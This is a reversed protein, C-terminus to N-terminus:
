LTNSADARRSYVNGNLKSIPRHHASVQLSSTGLSPFPITRMKPIDQECDNTMVTDMSFPTLTDYYVPYGLDSTLKIIKM